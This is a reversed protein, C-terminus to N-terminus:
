LLMVRPIERLQAHAQPTVKKQTLNYNEIHRYFQSRAISPPFESAKLAKYISGPKEGEDILMKIVDKFNNM